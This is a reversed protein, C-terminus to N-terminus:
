AAQRITADVHTIRLIPEEGGPQAAKPSPLPEPLRALGPIARRVGILTLATRAMISLDLSWSQERVYALDYRIWEQFDASRQRTRCVQWLGTMGPRVSLRAERWSPCYQNEDEPSPRPGVVNMDGTLVNWFQPIEDLHWRRLVRGIRTLRPDDAIHFQPGDCINQAALKSKLKEAGRCMTRFKWCTFTRGGVTQRRHGFFIPRGDEILIGLAILPLLPLAALLALASVIVNFSRLFRRERSPPAM